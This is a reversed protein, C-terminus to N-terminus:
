ILPLYNHRGALFSTEEELGPEGFVVWDGEISLKKSEKSKVIQAPTPIVLLPAKGLDAVDNNRFGDWSKWKNPIVVFDLQESATNSITRPEFGEAAIYWRPAVDSKVSTTGIHVAFELSKGPFITEFDRTPEVKYSCGNLHTFKLSKKSPLIFGQPRHQLYGLEMGTTICVHMSWGNREIPTRGKNRLTFVGTHFNELVEFRVEMNTAISDVISQSLAPLTTPLAPKVNATSQRNAGTRTMNDKAVSQVYSMVRNPNGTGLKKRETLFINNIQTKLSTNTQLTQLTEHGQANIGTSITPSQSNNGNFPSRELESGTDPQAIDESLNKHDDDHSDEKLHGTDLTLGTQVKSWM